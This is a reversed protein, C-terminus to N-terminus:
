TESVVAKDPEQTEETSTVGLNTSALLARWLMSFGKGAVLASIAGGTMEVMSEGPRIIALAPLFYIILKGYDRDLYATAASRDLWGLVWGFGIFGIILSPMGFNIYFEMVNGVGFSTQDNVPFGCMKEVIEPSGGYVPKDPWIARPVISILGMWLTKGRYYEVIEWQLRLAAMGVFSNQNLRQNLADLHDPDNLDLVKFETLIRKSEEIRKEIPEGGWVADRIQDRVTFYSVFLGMGVVSLITVIAWQKLISRNSVTMACSMLIMTATGYGLFGGLLLGTTPFILGIAFWFAMKDPRKRTLWYALTIVLPLVWLRSGYELAAGVSPIKILIPRLGYTVIFGLVLCYGLFFRGPHHWTMPRKKRRQRAMWVGFVFALVGIATLRIGKITVDRFELNYSGYEHAIAGPLHILLLLFVYAVPLGLSPAGNRVLMTILLYGIICLIISTVM